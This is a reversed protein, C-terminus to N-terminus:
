EIDCLQCLARGDACVRPAVRALVAQTLRDQTARWAPGHGGGRELMHALEHVLTLALEHALDSPLAAARGGRQARARGAPAKRASPSSTRGVRGNSPDTLSSSLEANSATPRRM